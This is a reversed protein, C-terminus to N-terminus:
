GEEPAVDSIIGTTSMYLIPVIGPAGKDIYLPPKPPVVNNGLGSDPLNFTIKYVVKGEDPEVLAPAQGEPRIAVANNAQRLQENPDIGANDLAMAALNAFDLVPKDTVVQFEEEECELEVGPLETSVKPYAAPEEEKLLGQFKPDEEPM